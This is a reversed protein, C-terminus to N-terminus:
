GIIEQFCILTMRIYFLQERSADCFLITDNAFLHSICVGNSNNLRVQFGHILGSEENKKLIRRLVEINLHFFLPSLPDGQRLSQTSGFFGVPSGNVLVLFHVTTVCAKVWRRRREGFGMKSLLNFLSDWNVHDYAKGIDLKCTVGLIRSKLKRDLCENAILVLDLIQRGSFFM